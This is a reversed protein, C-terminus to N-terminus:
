ILVNFRAKINCPPFGTNCAMTNGHAINDHPMFPQPFTDIFNGAVVAQRQGIDMGRERVIKIM